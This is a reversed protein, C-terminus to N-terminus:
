SADTGTVAGRRRTDEPETIVKAGNKKKAFRGGGGPPWAGRRLGPPHGGSRFSGLSSSSTRNGPSRWRRPQIRHKLQGKVVTAPGHGAKPHQPATCRINGRFPVSGKWQGTSDPEGVTPVIGAAADFRARGFTGCWGLWGRRVPRGQIAKATPWWYRTQRVRWTPRRHCIEDVGEAATGKYGSLARAAIAGTAGQRLLEGPGSLHTPQRIGARAYLGAHPRAEPGEFGMCFSPSGDSRTGKQQGEALLMPLDVFGVPGALLDKTSEYPCTSGDRVRRKAILAPPRRVPYHQPRRAGKAKAV